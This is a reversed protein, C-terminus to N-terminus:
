HSAANTITVVMSIEGNQQAKRFMSKLSDWVQDESGEVHTSMSGVTYDVGYGHLSEISQNIVSSAMDTKLPYLSVEACIM